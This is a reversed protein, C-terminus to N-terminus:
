PCSTGAEGPGIIRGQATQIAQRGRALGLFAALTALAMLTIIGILWAQTSMGWPGYDGALVYPLASFSLWSWTLTAALMVLMTVTTILAPLYAFRYIKVTTPNGFLHFTEQEVDTHAVVKWVALTSAIAGLVFTAMFGALLLRNGPPFPGPGVVPVVGPLLIHRGGVALILAAYGCLALFAVPPVLLPGLGRHPVSLARRIVSFALPLGGIVVALLAVAAGAQVVIWAANLVPDTKMLQLMPSDDALGVLGFGAIVFGIYAAFVILLATRIKNLMNLVRWNLSEGSLLRLHADLAGLIVDLVDLPTNLCQELLSTFEAEYRERWDRPYLRALWPQIKQLRM